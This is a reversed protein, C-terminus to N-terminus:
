IHPGDPFHMDGRPVYLARGVGRTRASPETFVNSVWVFPAHAWDGYDVGFPTKATIEFSLFGARVGDLEAVLVRDNLVRLKATPTETELPPAVYGVGEEVAEIAFQGRALWEVDALTGPRILVPDLARTAM